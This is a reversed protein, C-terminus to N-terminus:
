KTGTKIEQLLDNPVEMLKLGCESPRDGFHLIQVPRSDVQIGATGAAAKVEEISREIAIDDKIHFSTEM